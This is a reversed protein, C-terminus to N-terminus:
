MPAGLTEVYNNFDLLQYLALRTKDWLDGNAPVTTLGPHPRPITELAQYLDILYREHQSRMRVFAGLAQQIAADTQVMRKSDPHEYFYAYRWDRHEGKLADLHALTYHLAAGLQEDQGDREDVLQELLAFYTHAKALRNSYEHNLRWLTDASVIM